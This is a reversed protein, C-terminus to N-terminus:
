KKGKKWKKHLERPSKAEHVAPVVRPAPPRPKERAPHTSHTPQKESAPPPDAPSVQQVAPGAEVEPPLTEWSGPDLSTLLWEAPPATM